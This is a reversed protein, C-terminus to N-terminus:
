AKQRLVIDCIYDVEDMTLDAYLPLTLIENSVRAAVPTLRSDFQGAYAEYDSVLPYFYKRAGVGARSLQGFVQDRDSGFDEARIQVPMYSYNPTANPRQPPIHLGQVGRLRKMYARYAHGRRDIERDLLRLNCLGMAAAFESLKGNGGVSTVAEPGTLGFNQLSYLREALEPTRVVALGGEISHFVKTAHFSYMCADGFVASNVGDLSVDFAHAADYIVKLGHEDAISQIAHVDCLNGYIHVALIATTAPTIQRRIAEPDITFDGESIDAFVPKLGRRTLAHTTSAFTFPTTIVEGHVRLGDLIGELALHGNTFLAAYPASMRHSLADAFREHIAGRNTLWRSTWLPEIEALYDELPPMSSRVVPITRQAGINEDRLGHVEPTPDARDPPPNAIGM